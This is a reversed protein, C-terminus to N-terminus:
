EKDDIDEEIESVLEKLDDLTSKKVENEAYYNASTLSNDYMIDVLRDVVEWNEM